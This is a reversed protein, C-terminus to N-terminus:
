SGQWALRRLVAKAKFYRQTMLDVKPNHLSLKPSAEFIFEFTRWKQLSKLADFSSSVNFKGCAIQLDALSLVGDGDLDLHNFLERSTLQRVSCNEQLAIADAFAEMVKGADLCKKFKTAEAAPTETKVEEKKKAEAAKREEEAAKTKAEAEARAKEAEEKKKAEAAKREEEAAKTKAEAEARAKEAEEKKKAEAAKREEEVAKTEAEAEARAKEAEEKKKEEAARREEVRAKKNEKKRKAKSAKREECPKKKDEAEARAKEPEEKEKEALERSKLKVTEKQVAGLDGELTKVKQSESEKRATKHEVDKEKGAVDLKSDKSSQKEAASTEAELRAFDSQIVEIMGIVGGSASTMGEYPANTQVLAAAKAYFENLLSLAEAVASQAAKADQIAVTNEKKEKQRIATAETMAGNLSVVDKGLLQISSKLKEIQAQLKEVEDNKEGRLEENQSLEEKCWQFKTASDAAEKEMRAIMGQIMEKVKEMPDATVRAALAALNESQLRTASDQLLQAVKRLSPGKLSALATGTSLLSPLHKEANGAVAGGGIIETAREDVSKSAEQKKKRKKEEKARTKEPAEVKEKDKKAKKVQTGEIFAMLEDVSFDDPSWVKPPRPM